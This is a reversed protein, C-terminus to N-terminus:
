LSTPINTTQTHLSLDLVHNRTKISWFFTEHIIEFQHPAITTKHTRARAPADLGSLNVCNFASVCDGRVQAADGDAAGVLARDGVLKAREGELATVRERARELNAQLSAISRRLEIIEQRPSATEKEGSHRLRLNEEQLRAAIAKAGAAEKQLTELHERAQKIESELKVNSAAYRVNETEMRHSESTATDLAAQLSSVTGKLQQIEPELQELRKDLAAKDCVLNAASKRLDDVECELGRVKDDSSQTLAEQRLLKARMEAEKEGWAAKENAIEIVHAAELETRTAESRAQAARLEEEKERLENDTRQHAAVTEALNKELKAIKSLCEALQSTVAKNSDTIDTRNYLLSKRQFGDIERELQNIRTQLSAKESCISAYQKRMSDTEAELEAIRTTKSQAVARQRSAEILLESERREWATKEDAMEIVHAAELETRLTECRAESARIAEDKSRLAFNARQQAACADALDQELEDIRSRLGSDYGGSEEPSELTWDRADPVHSPQALPMHFAHSPMNHAMSTFMNHNMTAAAENESACLLVIFAAFILRLLAMKAPDGRNSARHLVDFSLSDKLRPVMLSWSLFNGLDAVGKAAEKV